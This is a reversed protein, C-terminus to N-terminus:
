KAVGVRRVHKLVKEFFAEQLHPPAAHGMQPENIISKPGSLANYAAYCSSPPCTHDGFGVSMLVEANCRTAFNVADVYRAAELMAPIPKGDPGMRVLKPWGNIRGAVRGSHDCLAPVGAAVFTVRPDIGGAVLAQGGGQSHGIVVVHEGDWEPLSTLLDIARVIRLFMNKFYVTDRDERGMFRYGDLRGSNLANYFSAPKGNPIGHANIDFSLMGAQAGKVADRLVSSRVGAGHVWLIAPLSKNAAAVPKAFYGSVPVDDVCPVRVDYCEISKDAHAVREVKPELPIAALARKQQIWFADFDDPVPLSLGIKTPSFGAGALGQVAQGDDPTYTARCRLFGPQSLTATVETAEEAPTVEGTPYGDSDLYDDVVYKLTGEGTVQQEGQWVSIRFKAPEGVEYIADERDSQIKVTYAEDALGVNHLLGCLIGSVVNLRASRTLVSHM